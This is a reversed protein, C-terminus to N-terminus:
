CLVLLRNYALDICSRLCIMTSYTADRSIRTVVADRIPFTATFGEAQQSESARTRITSSAFAPWPLLDLAVAVCCDAIVDRVFASSSFETRVIVWAIWVDEVASPM